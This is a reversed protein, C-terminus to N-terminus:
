RTMFRFTQILLNLPPVVADEPVPIQEIANLDRNTTTSSMGITPSYALLPGGPIGMRWEVRTEAQYLHATDVGVVQSTEAHLGHLLVSSATGLLLAIPLSQRQDTPLGVQQAFLPGGVYRPIDWTLRYVHVPQGNLATTSTSTLHMFDTYAGTQEAPIHYVVSSAFAMGPPALQAQAELPDFEPAAIAGTVTDTFWNTLEIGVWEPVWEPQAGFIAYDALRIYVVRDIRRTHFTLNAPIELGLGASLLASLEPSFAVRITQDTDISLPLLLLEALATPDAQLAEPSMAKLELLRTLTEPETVFTHTTSLQLSLEREGFPGGSLYVSVQNETTGSNLGAMTEATADLAACEAADLDGCYPVTGDDSQALSTSYSLFVILCAWLCSIWLRKM